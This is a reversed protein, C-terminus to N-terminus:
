LAYSQVVHHINKVFVAVGGHGDQRDEISQILHMLFCSGDPVSSYHSTSNMHVNCVSYVKEQLFHVHILLSRLLASWNFAKVLHLFNHPVSNITLIFTLM